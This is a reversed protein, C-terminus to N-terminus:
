SVIIPGTPSIAVFTTENQSSAPAACATAELTNPCKELVLSGNIFFIDDTDQAYVM